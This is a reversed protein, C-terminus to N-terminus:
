RPEAFLDLRAGDRHFIQGIGHEHFPVPRGLVAHIRHAEHKGQPRLQELSVAHTRHMRGASRLGAEGFRDRQIRREEM